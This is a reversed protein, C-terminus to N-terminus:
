FGGGGGGPGGGPGGGGGGFGPRNATFRPNVINNFISGFQYTIGYNIQYTSNTALAAQRLLIEENTQEEVALFRQNRVAAWNGRVNFSLGRTIRFDIRGNLEASWQDWHNLYQVLDVGAEFEGWPQVADMNVLLAHDLLTEATKEFITEEFYRNRGV